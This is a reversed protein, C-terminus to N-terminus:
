WTRQRKAQDFLVNLYTIAGIPIMWGFAFFYEIMTTFDVGWDKIMGQRYYVTMFGGAVMWALMSVVATAILM